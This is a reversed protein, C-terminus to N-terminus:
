MECYECEFVIKSKGIYGKYHETLANCVTKDKCCVSIGELVTDECGYLLNNAVVADINAILHQINQFYKITHIEHYGGSIVGNEYYSNCTIIDVQPKM